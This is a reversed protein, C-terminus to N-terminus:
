KQYNHVNENEQTSDYDQARQKEEESMDEEQGDEYDVEKGYENVIKYFNKKIYSYEDKITTVDDTYPSPILVYKGKDNKEVKYAVYVYHCLRTEGTLRSHNPDKTWSYRIMPIYTYYVTTTKGIKTTHPVPQMYTYTYRYETYDELSDQTSKIVELNDDIKMLDKKKLFDYLDEQGEINIYDDYRDYGEHKLHEDEIYKTFGINSRYMHAHSGNINCDAKEGCGTLSLPLSLVLAFTVGRLANLKKSNININM